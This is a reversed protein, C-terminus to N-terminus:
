GADPVNDLSEWVDSETSLVWAADEPPPPEVARSRGPGLLKSGARWTLGLTGDKHAVVRLGLLGYVWLYRQSRGAESVRRLEEIEQPSRRRILEPALVYLGLPSEKTHEPPCPEHERVVPQRDVLHALDALFEDM